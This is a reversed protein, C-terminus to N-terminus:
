CCISSNQILLKDLCKRKMVFREAGCDVPKIIMVIVFDCFSILESYGCVGAGICCVVYLYNFRFCRFCCFIAAILKDYNFIRKLHSLSVHVEDAIQQSKFPEGIHKRM